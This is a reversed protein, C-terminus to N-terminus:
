RYVPIFLCAGATIRDGSLKNIASVERIFVSPDAYEQGYEEALSWLTDGYQVEISTYMKEKVTTAEASGMSTGKGFLLILALLLIMLVVAILLLRRNRINLLSHGLASRMLTVELRINTMQSYLIVFVREFTM